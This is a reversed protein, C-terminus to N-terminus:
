AVAVCEGPAAQWRLVPRDIMLAALSDVWVKSPEYHYRESIEQGIRDM